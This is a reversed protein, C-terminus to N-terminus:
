KIKKMADKLMDIDEQIYFDTTTDYKAHGMLKQLAEPAVGSKAGRTAFTYRCTHPKLPRDKTRIGLRELTPYFERSRFNHDEKNGEYGSLLLDGTAKKMFYQVYLLIESHIPVIRDKGAETKEGGTFLQVKLDVKAKPLRLLENIRFGTYILILIVKSTDNIAADAKIIKIEKETFTPRVPRTSRPLRLFLAYNKDIIDERMSVKCLQSYLGKIKECQSRSHGKRVQEDILKQIDETRIERMKKQMLLDFLPWTIDYSEKGKESLAPYHEQKWMERIETLTLNYAESISRKQLRELAELAAAKNQYSGLFTSDKKIGWPKSRNGSLKYVCGTGNPRKKAKRETAAVHKGCYCCLIADDPISKKCKPCQM